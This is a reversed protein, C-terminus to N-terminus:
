NSGAVLLISISQHDLLQWGTPRHSTAIDALTSLTKILWSYVWHLNLYVLYVILNINDDAPILTHMIM